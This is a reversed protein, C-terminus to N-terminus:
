KELDIADQLTSPLEVKGTEPLLLCLLGVSINVIAFIIYPVVPNM